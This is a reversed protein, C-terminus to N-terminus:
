PALQDAGNLFLALTCDLAAWGAKARAPSSHTTPSSETSCAKTHRVDLSPPTLTPFSYVTARMLELARKDRGFQPDLTNLIGIIAPIGHMSTGAKKPRATSVLRPM